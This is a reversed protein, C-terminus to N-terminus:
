GRSLRWTGIPLLSYSCGPYEAAMSRRPLTLSLLPLVVREPNAATIKYDFCKLLISHIRKFDASFMAKSKMSLVQTSQVGVPHFLAIQKKELTAVIIAMKTVSASPSVFEILQRCLRPEEFPADSGFLRREPVKASHPRRFGINIKLKHGEAAQLADPSQQTSFFGYAEKEVATVLFNLRFIFALHCSIHIFKVQM